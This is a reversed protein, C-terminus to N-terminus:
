DCSLRGRGDNVPTVTSEDRGSRGRGEIITQAEPSEIATMIARWHVSVM